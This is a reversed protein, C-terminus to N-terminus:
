LTAYIKRLESSYSIIDKPLYQYTEKLVNLEDAKDIEYGYWMTNKKPIFGEVPIAILYEINDTTVGYCYPKVVTYQDEYVMEILNKNQIAAIIEYNM